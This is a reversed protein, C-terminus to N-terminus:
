SPDIFIIMRNSAIDACCLVCSGSRLFADIWNEARKAESELDGVMLKEAFSIVNLSAQDTYKELSEM